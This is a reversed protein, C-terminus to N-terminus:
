ITPLYSRNIAAANFQPNKGPNPQRSEPHGLYPLYNSGQNQFPSSISM